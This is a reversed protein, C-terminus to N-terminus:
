LVRCHQLLVRNLAAASSSHVRAIPINNRKEGKAASNVMRHSVKSTFLILLNPCGMKKKLAGNENAFVKAECGHNKCIDKYQCAMRENGGVMVVSM